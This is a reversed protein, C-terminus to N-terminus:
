VSVLHEHQYASHLLGTFDADAILRHDGIRAIAIGPTWSNMVVGALQGLPENRRIPQTKQDVGLASLQRQLIQMTVGTLINAEPWIVSRGDWFALNWITAESLRGESDEFAADDFGRTVAQRLLLTKAVEGVHKVHPLDRQHAVVDLALPGLPVTAADTIRTVVDLQIEPRPAVFEGPSSTIFLALSADEPAANLAVRLYDVIQADPLHRGFMTDSADRLRQLHLDLGRISRDHIQMATFHAFGAFALPALDDSSAVTGNLLTLSHTM